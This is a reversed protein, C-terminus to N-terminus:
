PTFAATLTAAAAPSIAGETELAAVLTLLDSKTALAAVPGGLKINGGNDAIINQDGGGALLASRLSLDAAVNGNVTIDGTGFYDICLMDATAEISGTVKLNSGIATPWTSSTSGSRISIYGSGNINIWNSDAWKSGDWRLMEGVTDGPDIDPFDSPLGNLKNFLSTTMVGARSATADLIRADTGGTNTIDVYNTSPASALNSITGGGGSVQVWANNNRGYTNGDAPADVFVSIPSGNIYFNYAGSLNIDGNVELKYAPVTQGIGVNGNEAVRFRESGGADIVVTNGGASGIRTGFNNASASHQFALYASDIGSNQVLAVVKTTNTSKVHLPYSPSTVGIGLNGTPSIRMREVADTQFTMAAATRTGTLFAGGYAYIQSNGGGTEPLIRTDSGVGNQIRIGPSVTDTIDLTYFPNTNGIGVNGAATIRMRATNNTVFNIDAEYITGISLLGVGYQHLSAADSAASTIIRFDSGLGNRIRFGPNSGDTIDLPFFPATTGIGVNGASDIRMRELGLNSFTMADTSNDLAIQGNAIATSNGFRIGTKKTDDGVIDLYINTAVAGQLICKDAAGLAPVPTAGASVHFPALPNTTGIGVNGSDLEYVNGYLLQQEDTSVRIHKNAAGVKDSPTDTLEDFTTASAGGGGGGAEGPLLFRAEDEDWDTKTRECIIYGLLISRQCIYPIEADANDAGINAAADIYNDYVRQGYLIWFNDAPDLYIRQITASNVPGGVPSITGADDWQTPDVTSTVGGIVNFNRDIYEFSIPLQASFAERNPDKKNVHWNRNQEWIVGAQMDLTLLAAETVEGGSEIYTIGNLRIYEALTYVAQNIVYPSSVDKWFVGNHLSYGVFIEDRQQAPTPQVTRQVLAGLFANDDPPPAPTGTNAISFYRIEGAQAPLTMPEQLNDWVILTKTPIAEPTTYADVIVGRGTNVLVDTGGAIDVEGGSILGSPWAEALLDNAAEDKTYVPNWQLYQRGYTVGDDPVEPFEGGGEGGGGGGGPISLFDWDPSAVLEQFSIDIGYAEDGVVPQPVGDYELFSQIGAWSPLTGPGWYAPIGVFKTASAVPVIITTLCRDTPAPAGNTGISDIVVTWEYVGALFTESSQALYTISTNPDNIDVFQFTSGPIVGTLDILNADADLENIRLLTEQVNTNWQGSIPTTTNSSTARIWDAPTGGPSVSSGSNLADIYVLLEEGAQMLITDAGLVTWSNEILIPDNIRTLIPNSTNPNRVIVIAYNTDATLEPVWIRLSRFYGTKTFTYLHGSYIVSTDSYTTWGPADPLTYVPDGVTQPAARDTTQKNAVMTWGDDYVVDHTYYTQPGWVNRWNMRFEAQFASGNWNLGHRIQIATSTDVDGQDPGYLDHVQNHHQDPLVDALSSHSVIGGDGPATHGHDTPPFQSPKNLVDDWQVGRVLSLKLNANNAPEPVITSDNYTVQITVVGATETALATVDYAYVGGTDTDGVLVADGDDLTILFGTVDTADGTIVNVYLETVLAPDSNNWSLFGALPTTTGTNNFQYLGSFIEINEIRQDLDDLFNGLQKRVDHLNGRAVDYKRKAM